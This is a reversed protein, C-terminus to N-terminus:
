EIGRIVDVLLEGHLGARVAGVKVGFEAGGFGVNVGLQGLPEVRELLNDCLDLVPELLSLLSNQKEM